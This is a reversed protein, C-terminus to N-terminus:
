PCHLHDALLTNINIGLYAFYSCLVDIPSGFLDRCIPLDFWIEDVINSQRFRSIEPEVIQSKIGDTASPRRATLRGIHVSTYVATCNLVM